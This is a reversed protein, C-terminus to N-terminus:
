ITIKSTKRSFGSKSLELQNSINAYALSITTDLSEERLSINDKAKYQVQMYQSTKLDNVVM